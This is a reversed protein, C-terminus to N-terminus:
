EGESEYTKLYDWDVNYAPIVWVVNELIQINFRTWGVEVAVVYGIYKGENSFVGSGSSGPWAYSDLLIKHNDINMIAGGITSPGEGNPFGTYYVKSLISLEEKWESPRPLHRPMRIPVAAEVEEVEFIAYDMAADVIVFEVCEYIEEEYVARTEECDGLIGHATTLIYRADGGMSFYTGSSGAVHGEEDVSLVRVASQRSGRVAQRERDDLDNTINTADQIESMPARQSTRHASILAGYVAGSVLTGFLLWKALKRMTTKFRKM